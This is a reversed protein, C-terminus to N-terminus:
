VDGGWTLKFMLAADITAFELWWDHNVVVPDFIYFKGGASVELPKMRYPPDRDVLKWSDVPLTNLWNSIEVPFIGFRDLIDNVQFELLTQDTM